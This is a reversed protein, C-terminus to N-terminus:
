DKCYIVMGVSCKNTDSNGPKDSKSTKAKRKGISRGHRQYLATFQKQCEEASRTGVLLSVNVWYGRKHKPFTNVARPFDVFVSCISIEKNYTIFMHSFYSNVPVPIFTTFYFNSGSNYCYDDDDVTTTTHYNPLLWLIGKVWFAQLWSDFVHIIYFHM